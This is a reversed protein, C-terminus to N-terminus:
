AIKNEAIVVKSLSVRPRRQNAVDNAGNNGLRINEFLVKPMARVEEQRKLEQQALRRDRRPVAKSVKPPPPDGDGDGAHKRKKPM